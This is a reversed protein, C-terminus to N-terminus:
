MYYMPNKESHRYNYGANLFARATEWPSRRGSYAWIRLTADEDVGPPYLLEEVIPPLIFTALPNSPSPFKTSPLPHLIRAASIQPYKPM